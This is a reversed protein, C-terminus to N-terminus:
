ISSTGFIFVVFSQLFGYLSDLGLVSPTIIRNNTITQFIISSFAISGGTIIIAVVRPIRKSLNYEYNDVNLGYVLFLTIALLAIGFLIYIKKKDKM